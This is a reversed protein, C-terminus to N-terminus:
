ARPDGARRRRVVLGLLTGALLVIAASAVLMLSTGAGAAPVAALSSRQPEAPRPSGTADDAAPGGGDKREAGSGGSGDSASNRSSPKIGAGFLHSGDAGPASGHSEGSGHSGGDRADNLPLAYETGAPSDPDVVVGPEQAQTAAASSLCVGVLLATGSAAARVRM